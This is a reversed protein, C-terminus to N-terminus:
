STREQHRFTGPNSVHASFSGDENVWGHAHVEFEADNRMHITGTLVGEGVLTAVMQLSIMVGPLAHPCISVPLQSKYKDTLALTQLSRKDFHRGELFRSM